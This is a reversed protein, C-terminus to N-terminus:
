NQYLQSSQFYDKWCLSKLGYRINNRIFLKFLTKEFWFEINQSRDSDRADSGRLSTNFRNKVTNQKRVYLSHPDSSRTGFCVKSRTIM